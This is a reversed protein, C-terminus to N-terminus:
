SGFHSLNPLDFETLKSKVSERLERWQAETWRADPREKMKLLISGLKMAVFDRVALKQFTFGACPGEFRKPNKQKDRVEKDDIFEALYALRYTKHKDKIYSYNVPNMMEMRLGVSAKRTATLYKKWIEVDDLHMIIHTLNAAESTWYPEDVDTPLQEIM